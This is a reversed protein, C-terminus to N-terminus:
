LALSGSQEDSAIAAEDAEEDRRASDFSQLYSPDARSMKYRFDQLAQGQRQAYDCDLDYATKLQTSTSEIAEKTAFSDISYLPPSIPKINAMVRNNEDSNAARRRILEVVLRKQEPQIQNLPIGSQALELYSNHEKTASVALTTIFGSSIALVVAVLIFKPHLMQGNRRHRNRIGSVFVFNLILASLWASWISVRHSSDGRHLQRLIIAPIGLNVLLLLYIDRRETSDPPNTAQM